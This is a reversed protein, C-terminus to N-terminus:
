LTGLNKGPSGLLPGTEGVDENHVYIRVPELAMMPGRLQTAKPTDVDIQFRIKKRKLKSLLEDAAHPTFTGIFTYPDDDPVEPPARPTSRAVRAQGSSKPWVQTLLWALMAAPTFAFLAFARANPGARNFALLYLGGCLAAALLVTV